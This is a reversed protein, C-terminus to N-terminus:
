VCDIFKLVFESDHLVARDLKVHSLFPQTLASRVKKEFEASCKAGLTVSVVAVPPIPLFYGLSGDDLPKKRLLSSTLQFFQRLEAEYRWEENKSFVMKKEFALTRLDSEEWTTDFVVRERVYDVLRLDRGNKPQFVDNSSDFGIVLGSHKDCYHGWMLISDRKNSLCLVGFKKSTVDLINSKLDATVIQVKQSMEKAMKPRNTRVYKKFQRLSGSFRGEAMLDQYFSELHKDNKLIDIARRLPNTAILHPTFEFPDNFQNPPTVKLELNELVAVGHVGCYKYATDM